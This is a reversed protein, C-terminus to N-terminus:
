DQAIEEASGSETDDVQEAITLYGNEILWAEREAATMEFWTDPCDAYPKAPKQTDEKDTQVALDDSKETEEVTEKTEEITEEIVEETEEVVEETEEVTEM